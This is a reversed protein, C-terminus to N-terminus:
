VVAYNAGHSAGAAVAAPPHPAAAGGAAAVAQGAAAAMAGGGSHSVSRAWFPADPQLLESPLPPASPVDIAHPQSVVSPNWFPPPESFFPAEPTPAPQPALIVIPVQLPHLSSSPAPSACQFTTVLRSAHM